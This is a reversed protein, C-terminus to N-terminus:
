DEEERGRRKRNKMSTRVVGVGGWLDLLALL